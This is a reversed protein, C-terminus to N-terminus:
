SNVLRRMSRNHVKGLTVQAVMAGVLADFMDWQTDWKDGQAGLDETAGSSSFNVAWAAELLEFLAAIGLCLGTVILPRWKTRNAGVGSTRILLERLVIAPTFGQMFHGLRDYHNRAFGFLERAWEGLPARAYTYHAGFVIVLAFVALAAYAVDSLPLRRYTAALIPIGLVVWIVEALWTGPQFAGIRSAILGACVLLVLVLPQRRTM